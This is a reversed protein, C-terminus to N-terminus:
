EQSIYDFYAIVVAAASTRHATFTIIDRGRTKKKKPQREDGEMNCKRRFFSNREENQTVQQKKEETEEEEEKKRMSNETGFSHNYRKGCPMRKWTAQTNVKHFHTVDRQAM